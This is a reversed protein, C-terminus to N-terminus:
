LIRASKIPWDRGHLTKGVVHGKRGDTSGGCRGGPRDQRRNRRDSDAPRLDPAPPRAARGALVSKRAVDCDRGQAPRPRPRSGGRERRGIQRTEDVIVPVIEAAEGEGTGAYVGFMGTDVYSAAFAYISYALGRIERVEQFLRSSMGGGLLTAYVQAAYFDPDDYTVGDFGLLLHVQELERETRHDGGVYRAPEHTSGRGNRLGAFKSEALAVLMDHDVAGSAALIMTPARYNAAMYDALHARGFGKVREPTGLITRGLAQSPYAVEQLNDFIIDDPTDLAQGIEQLIVARERELETEDFVSNQLIDSLIDVALPVDEALIRAVYATQERSTYANLHGGVAEIEEAIQRASRRATGKFAMHELMHSVGNLEAPEHRAGVDVWIGIAASKAQPVPDTAITLGNSFKTIQVTM